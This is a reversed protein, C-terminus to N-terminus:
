GNLVLRNHEPELGCCRMSGDEGIRGLLPRHGVTVGVASPMMPHHRDITCAVVYREKYIALHQLGEGSGVKGSDAARHVEATIAEFSVYVVEDEELLCQRLMENLLEVVIRRRAILHTDESVQGKLLLDEVRVPYEFEDETRVVLTDNATRLAIYHVFDNRKDRTCFTSRRSLCHGVLNVM